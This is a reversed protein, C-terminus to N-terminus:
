HSPQMAMESRLRCFKGTDERSVPFYSISVPEGIVAEVALNAKIKQSVLPTALSGMDTGLDLNQPGEWPVM